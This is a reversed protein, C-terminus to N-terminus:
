KERELHVQLGISVMITNNSGTVITYKYTSYSILIEMGVVTNFYIVPGASLSLTNKQTKGSATGTEFGYLYGAETIVNVNKEPNLLYYRFFPGLNFDTDSPGGKAGKTDVGIKIGAALKDIFFYGVNPKVQLNYTTLPVGYNESNNNTSAYSIVGGLIWNSKTIQSNSNLSLLITTLLVTITKLM